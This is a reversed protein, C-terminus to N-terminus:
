VPDARPRWRQRSRTRPSEGGTPVKV